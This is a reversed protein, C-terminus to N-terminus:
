CLGGLLYKTTLGLGANMEVIELYRVDGVTMPEEKM